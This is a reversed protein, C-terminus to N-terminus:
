IQRLAELLFRLLLRLIGLLAHLSNALSSVDILASSCDLECLMLLAIRSCFPLSVPM